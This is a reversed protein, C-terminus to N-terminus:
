KVVPHEAFFRLLSVIHMTDMDFFDEAEREVGEAVQDNQWQCLRWYRGLLSHKPHAAIYSCPM